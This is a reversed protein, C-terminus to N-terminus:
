ELISPRPFLLKTEGTILNIQSLRRRGHIYVITDQDLAGIIHHGHRWPIWRIENSSPNLRGVYAESQFSKRDNISLGSTHNAVQVISAPECTEYHGYLNLPSWNTGSRPGGISAIPTCVDQDVNYLSYDHGNLVLVRGDLQARGIISGEELGNIPELVKTEPDFRMWPEGDEEPEILWKGPLIIVRPCAPGFTFPLEEGHFVERRSADFLARKRGYKSPTHLFSGLGVEINRTRWPHGMGMAEANDRYDVLIREPDVPTLENTTLDVARFSDSYGGTAEHLILESVHPYSAPGSERLGEDTPHLFRQNPWHEVAGTSLEVQFAHRNTVYGAKGLITRLLGIPRSSEYCSLYAQEGQPGLYAHSIYFSGSKLNVAAFSFDNRVYGHLGVGLAPSVALFTFGLSVISRRLNTAGRTLTFSSWTRLWPILLIAIFFPIFFFDRSLPSSNESVSAGLAGVSLASLVLAVTLPVVILIWRVPLRWTMLALPLAYLALEIEVPGKGFGQHALNEFNRPTAFYMLGLVTLAPLLITLAMALNLFLAKGIFNGHIGAPCRRQLAETSRQASGGFIRPMIALVFGLYGLLAFAVPAVGDTVLDFGGFLAMALILLLLGAWLGLLNSRQERWEIWANHLISRLIM